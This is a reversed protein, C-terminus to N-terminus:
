RIYGNGSCVNALIGSKSSFNPAVLLEKATLQLLSLDYRNTPVVVVNFYFVFYQHSIIIGVYPVDISATM